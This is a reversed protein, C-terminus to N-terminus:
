WAAWRAFGDRHKRGNSKGAAALGIGTGKGDRDFVGCRTRYEREVNDAITM